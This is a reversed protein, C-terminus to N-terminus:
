SATSTKNHLDPDSLPVEDQHIVKQSSMEKGAVAVNGDDLKHRRKLNKRRMRSVVLVVFTLIGATSEMSMLLLLVYWNPPIVGVGVM